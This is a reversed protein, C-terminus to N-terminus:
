GLSEQHTPTIQIKRATDLAAWGIMGVLAVSVVKVTTEAETFASLAFTVLGALGATNLANTLVNAVSVSGILAFTLAGFIMVRSAPKTLQRAWYVVYVRRM